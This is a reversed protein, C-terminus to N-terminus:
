ANGGTQGQASEQEAKIDDLSRGGNFLRFVYDSLPITIKDLGTRLVMGALDKAQTDTYGLGHRLTTIIDPVQNNLIYLTLETYNKYKSSLVNFAGLSPKLVLDQGDLTISVEGRNLDSM